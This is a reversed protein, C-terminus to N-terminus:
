AAKWRTGTPLDELIIGKGKLHARIADAGAFDRAKKAAQRAAILLEVLDDDLEGGAALVAAAPPMAGTELAALLPARDAIGRWAELRKATEVMFTAEGWRTLRDKEIMGLRRRVLVDLVQDLSELAGQVARWDAPKLDRELQNLRSVLELVAAMAREIDLDDDLAQDFAALGADIAQQVAPAPTGAGGLEFARDYLSQLRAVANRAQTLADFSFNILQRYHGWMLTLRLVPAAVKGTEFGAATLREGLEPRGAAVPDLLDRVTFFTGDRKSMKRGEVMLHRGHVWFRAFTLRPGEPGPVQTGLAGCSQAIECEHHPFINDEGGTHVDIAEGLCGLVMASCEIHWGPFGKKLRADVGGPLLLQLRQWDEPAWGDPGHPDWQMLHKPDVKWLAFDRPDRKEERVEVRAGAELEDLVKGSLQGYSPFTAISFYVQGASDTYAHGRELLRQILALMEPIFRTARPHLGPESGEAGGYNRLRLMRADAEFASLFHQAVQYPDWGLERAAKALKDEGHADALHDQTM